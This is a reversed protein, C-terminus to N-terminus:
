GLVSDGDFPEASMPQVEDRAVLPLGCRRM